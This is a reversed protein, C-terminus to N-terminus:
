RPQRNQPNPGHLVFSADKAFAYELGRLDNQALFCRLKVARDAIERVDTRQQLHGRSVPNRESEFDNDFARAVGAAGNPSSIRFDPNHERLMACFRAHDCAETMM